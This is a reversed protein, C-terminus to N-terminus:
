RFDRCKTTRIERPLTVKRYSITYYLDCFSATIRFKGYLATSQTASFFGEPSFGHLPLLTYADCR